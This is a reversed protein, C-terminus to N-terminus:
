KVGVFTAFNFHRHLIATKVFGVKRMLSLQYDLTQPTDESEYKGLYVQYEDPFNKKLHAAWGNYMIQDIETTEGVTIDNIFFLGGLKLADYVKAFVSEWENPQRLHHLTTGATVVDFLNSGLQLNRYDGCMGEVCGKTTLKAREVAAALMKPSIDVLMCNALPFRQLLKIAYNGGGCGIDMIHSCQPQMAQAVSAVMEMCFPSDIATTQGTELNSFREVQEDFARSISEASSKQM